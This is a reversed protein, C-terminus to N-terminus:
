DGLTDEGHEFLSLNITQVDYVGHIVYYEIIKDFNSSPSFAIGARQLLDVMVDYDLELALALAVATKKKPKYDPTCRIKSFLKRDINAKKYVEPDTMGSEDILELLREQFTKNNEAIIDELSDAIDKASDKPISHHKKGDFVSRFNDDKRIRLGSLYRSIAEKGSLRSVNNLVEVREDKDIYKLFAAYEENQSDFVATNDIYSDVNAFIRGSLEFSKEDFVVLYVTLDHEYLFDTITSMAIQLAKDKPFMYAGTSILPFAITECELEVAKNLSKNYCSKLLDFEKHHGGYWIPGVAHIIYKAKLKFAPTVAIDGVAINGIKKRESLLDDIGAASYVAYDTGTGYKPKPNASNVIIDVDVKTIDNRIIKLPM